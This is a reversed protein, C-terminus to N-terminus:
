DIFQPHSSKWNNLMGRSDEQWPHFGPAFFKLWPVFVKRVLGRKGFNYSFVDKIEKWSPKLKAWRMIKYQGYMIEIIFAITVFIMTLRLLIPRDVVDKYVDFAVAKHEIEEVAHWEFLKRLQYESDGMIEPHALLHEGLIATFHEACVTQALWYQRGLKSEGLPEYQNKIFKDFIGELRKVDLDCEDTIKQNIDRHIKQHHGEQGIFGRIDNSLKPDKVQDRFNRVSKIFGMEGEPFMATLSCGFATLLTNGNYFLRDKFPQSLFDPHRPEIKPRDETAVTKHM